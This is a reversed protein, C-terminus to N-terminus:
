WRGTVTRQSSRSPARAAARVEAAPSTASMGIVVPSSIGTRSTSATLTSPMLSPEYWITDSSPTSCIMRTTSPVASGTARGEFFSRASMSSRSAATASSSASDSM